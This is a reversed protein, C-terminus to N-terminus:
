RMIHPQAIRSAEILGLCPNCKHLADLYKDYLFRDSHTKKCVCALTLDLCQLRHSEEILADIRHHDMRIDMNAIIHVICYGFKHDICMDAYEWFFDWDNASSTIILFQILYEIIGYKEWGKIVHRRVAQVYEIDDLLLPQQQQLYQSMCLHGMIHDSQLMHRIHHLADQWEARNMLLHVWAYDCMQDGMHMGRRILREHKDMDRYKVLNALTFYGVSHNKICWTATKHCWKYITGFHALKSYLCYLVCANLLHPNDSTFTERATILRHILIAEDPSPQYHIDYNRLCQTVYELPKM